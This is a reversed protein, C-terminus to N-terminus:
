DDDEEMLVNLALTVAKGKDNEEFHSQAFALGEEFKEKYRIPVFLTVQFFEPEVEEIEELETSEKVETQVMLEELESEQVANDLGVIMDGDLLSLTENLIDSNWGSMDGTANDAIAYAKATLEDDDVYVCAIKKWGLQKAATLLGNGAIVEGTVYRAIIPKRQGFLELSKALEEIQKEPHNRANNKDFKLKSIPVVLKKLQETIREM